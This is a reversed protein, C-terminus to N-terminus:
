REATPLKAELEDLPMKKADDASPMEDGEEDDEAPSLEIMDGHIADVTFSIVDGPKANMGQEGLAAAPVMMGASQDQEPAEPADQPEPAQEQPNM